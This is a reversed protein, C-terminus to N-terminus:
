KCTLRLSFAETKLTSHMQQFRPLCDGGDFSNEKNNCAQDCAKDGIWSRYCNTAGHKSLIAQVHQKRSERFDKTTAVSLTLLLAIATLFLCSKM